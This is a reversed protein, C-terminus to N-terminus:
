LATASPCAMCAHLRAIGPAREFVAPLAPANTRRILTVELVPLLILANYVHHLDHPPQPSSVISEASAPHTLFIRLINLLGGNVFLFRSPDQIDHWRAELRMRLATM